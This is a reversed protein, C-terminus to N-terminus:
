FIGINKKLRLVKKLLDISRRKERKGNQYALLLCCVHNSIITFLSLEFNEPWRIAIKVSPIKKSILFFFNYLRLFKKDRSGVGFRKENTHRWQESKLARNNLFRFWSHVQEDEFTLVSKNTRCSKKSRHAHRPMGGIAWRPAYRFRSSHRWPRKPAM